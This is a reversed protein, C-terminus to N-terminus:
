YVFFYDVVTYNWKIQTKKICRRKLSFFCLHAVVHILKKPKWFSDVRGCFCFFLYQFIWGRTAFRFFYIGKPM